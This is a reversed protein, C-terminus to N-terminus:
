LLEVEDPRFFFRHGFAGMDRGPDDDVTVVVYTRGEVDEEIAEVTARQGALALDFVDARGSPRLLVSAGPVIARRELRGHLRRLSEQDLAETRELLARARPDGAALERKEDDTLTLIRLTLIEDIETGDFLDGPSEPAVRPHDYLIIPAALLARRSGPPGVLVPWTGTSRCAAAMEALGAPPDILSVFEGGRVTLVLHCSAMSHELARERSAPGDMATTNSARLTLRLLRPGADSWRSHVAGQIRDFAFSQSLERGPALAIDLERVLPGGDALQLFRLRADVAPEREGTVLLCQLELHSADGAAQARCFAEPHLTGFPWWSHNKTATRRYPYLLYGEFLIADAIRDLERRDIERDLGDKM